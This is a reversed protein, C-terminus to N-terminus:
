RYDEEVIDTHLNLYGHEQTAWNFVYLWPTGNHIFPTELGGGAPVWEDSELIEATRYQTVSEIQEPTLNPPLQREDDQMDVTYCM